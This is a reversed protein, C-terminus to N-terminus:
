RKKKLCFVAYSIFSHSQLESTHEESRTRRVFPKPQGQQDTAMPNIAWAADHRHQIRGCWLGHGLHRLQEKKVSPITEYQELITRHDGTAVPWERAITRLHTEIGAIGNPLHHM